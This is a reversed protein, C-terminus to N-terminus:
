IGFVLAKGGWYVFHGSLLVIVLLESLLNCLHHSVGM